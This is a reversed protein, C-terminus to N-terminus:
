RVEQIYETNNKLCEEARTLQGGLYAAHSTQSVYFLMQDLLEQASKGKWSLNVPDGTNYVDIFGDAVSIVFNGRSDWTRQPKLNEKLIQKAEEWNREYIHASASIIIVSGKELNLESNKRNAEEVILNQLALIGFANEPWALFMDNSRIYVTLYLKKNQVLVQVLDLCPPNDSAHDLEVNWTSAVARRSYPTKAILDIIDQIQDVGNYERLRQGYTYKSWETKKATTITPIYDNIQRETLALYDPLYPKNLDENEIITILDVLEKQREGYQSGKVKGFAMINKLIDLWGEAAKGRRVVFVSEESPLELNDTKQSDPLIFTEYEQPNNKLNEDIAKQIKEPNNEGILNVIKVRSRFLAIKEASIEKEIKAQGSGVIFHNQDVGCDILNLLSRSSKTEEIVGENGCLILTDIYPHALVNRIISSIGLDRSYLQGVAAYTNKDLGRIILDKSTWHCVVGVNSKLNGVALLEKYKVPWDISKSAMKEEMSEAKLLFSLPRAETM